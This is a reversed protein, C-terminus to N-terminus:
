TSSYAQDTSGGQADQEEQVAQADQEEESDQEEEQDEDDDDEEDEVAEGDVLVHEAEAPKDVMDDVMAAEVFKGTAGCFDCEPNVKGYQWTSLDHVDWAGLYDATYM